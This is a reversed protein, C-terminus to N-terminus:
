EIERGECIQVPLKIHWKGGSKKEVSSLMYEAALKGMEAIPQIIMPVPKKLVTLSRLDEPEAVVPQFIDFGIVKFDDPLYFGKDCAADLIGMLLRNSELFIGPHNLRRSFIDAGTRAIEKRATGTFIIHSKNFNVGRQAAIEGVGKLREGVPYSRLTDGVYILNKTGQKILRDAGSRAAKRNDTVVFPLNAGPFHRDILIVPLTNQIEKLFVINETGVAPAIVLGEIQRGLLDEIHTRERSVSDGSTCTITQYGSSALQKEICQIIEPYFSTSIDPVVIGITKTKRGQLSRAIWNPRYQMKKAAQLIRQRKADSIRIPISRLVKSVATPSVKVKAAIDKLRAGTNRMGAEFFRM